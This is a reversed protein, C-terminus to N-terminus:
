RMVKSSRSGSAILAKYHATDRAGLSRIWIRGTRGIIELCVALEDNLGDGTHNAGISGRFVWPCIPLM